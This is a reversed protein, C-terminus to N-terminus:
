PRAWTAARVACNPTTSFYRTSHKEWGSRQRGTERMQPVNAFPAHPPSIARASFHMAAPWYRQSSRRLCCLDPRHRLRFLTAITLRGEPMREAPTAVTSPAAEGPPAAPNAEPPPAVLLPADDQM